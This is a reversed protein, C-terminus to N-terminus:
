LVLGALSFWSLLSAHLLLVFFVKGCIKVVCTAIKDEVEFCSAM